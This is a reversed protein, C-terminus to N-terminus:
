AENAEEEWLTHNFLTTHIGQQNLRVELKDMGLSFVNLLGRILYVHAHPYPDSSGTPAAYASSISLGVVLGLAIGRLYQAPWRVVYQLNRFLEARGCPEAM